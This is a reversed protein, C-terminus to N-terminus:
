NDKFESCDTLSSANSATWRLASARTQLTPQHTSAIKKQSKLKVNELESGRVSSGEGGIPHDDLPVREEEENCCYIVLDSM